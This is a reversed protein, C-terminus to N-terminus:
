AYGGRRGRRSQRPGGLTGVLKKLAYVFADVIDDHVGAQPFTALQGLLDRVWEHATPFVGTDPLLVRGSECVPTVGKARTVKDAEVKVPILALDPRQRRLYQMLTIGSAKDEVYDGRYREGYSRRLWDAQAVLFEALDPTEWRGHAMRLVYLQGDEGLGVTVCASEDNEEKAKLATDWTTWAERLRPLKRYRAFWARKFVGGEATIEWDGNRLQERTVPDLEDLNRQYEEQDLHPNDELRAPVFIRGAAEAESSIFRGKVWEHGVGGPNSAGRIRLPCDSGATRRCRSFLYRYQVETFHTLEDFGVFQFEAGQYRFRDLDHQLYSFSLTAGSPFGFRRDVQNWGVGQPILWEKARDMIAGPLALDTYTRRFLIAAYDPRHVEQLAAMLLADSKGGGAAGGYFAERCSLALFAQQRETPAHPSYDRREQEDGM